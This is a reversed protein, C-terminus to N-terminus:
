VRGGRHGWRPPPLTEGDRAPSPPRVRCSGKGRQGRSQAVGACRLGGTLACFRKKSRCFPGGVDQWRRLQWLRPSNLLGRGRDSPSAGPRARPISPPALAPLPESRRSRRRTGREGATGASCLLDTRVERQGGRRSQPVPAPGGREAGAAAPGRGRWLPAEAPLPGAGLAAAAARLPPPGPEAEGRGQRGGAGREEGSGGRGGSLSERHAGGGRAPPM